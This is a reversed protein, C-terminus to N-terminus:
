NKARAELGTVTLMEIPMGTAGVLLAASQALENLLDLRARQNQLISSRAQIVRVVDVEGARFQRELSQLEQPLDLLESYWLPLLLCEFRRAKYQKSLSRNSFLRLRQCDLNCSDLKRGAQALNRSGM